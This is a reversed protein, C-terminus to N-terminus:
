TDVLALLNDVIDCLAAVQIRLEPVSNASRAASKSNAAAIEIQAAKLGRDTTKEKFEAIQEDAPRQPSAPNVVPVIAYTAADVLIRATGTQTGTESDIVPVVSEPAPYPAPIDEYSYVAIAHEPEAAQSYVAAAERQGEPPAPLNDLYRWGVAQLQQWNPNHTGPIKRPLTQARVQTQINCYWM